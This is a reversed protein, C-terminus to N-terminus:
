STKENEIEEKLIKQLPPLIKEAFKKCAQDIKKGHAVYGMGTAMKTAFYDTNLQIIFNRFSDKGYNRWAFSFNLNGYDTVGAFFGDSTLVVQGLWEGSEEWLTYSKATIEPKKDETDTNM